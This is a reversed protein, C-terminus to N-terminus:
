SSCTCLLSDAWGPPAQIFEMEAESLEYAASTEGSTSPMACTSSRAFVSYESTYPRTLMKMVTQVKSNDGKEAAAIAIQAVWNRLIFAPNSARASQLALVLGGTNKATRPTDRIDKLKQSYKDLFAKWIVRDKLRKQDSTTSVKKDKDSELQEKLSHLLTAAKSLKDFKKKETMLEGKVVELPAGGYMEIVAEPESELLDLLQMLQQPHMSLRHIRIKRQLLSVLEEPTACRSVIKDVATSVAADDTTASTSTSLDAILDTLAQFTDTYDAYTAAMSETLSAVMEKLEISPENINNDDTGTGTGTGATTATSTPLGLKRAMLQYYKRDYISDYTALVSAAEAPSVHPVLVEALKGL